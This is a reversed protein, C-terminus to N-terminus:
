RLGDRELAEAEHDDVLLLVEADLLLLPELLQPGVDMDEGQGGRRDRAGELHRKRAHALQRHDGGRRHVAEGHAGEHQGEVRHHDAVGHQALM